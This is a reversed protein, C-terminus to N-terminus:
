ILKQDRSSISDVDDMIRSEKIELGHNRILSLSIERSKEINMLAYITLLDNSKM